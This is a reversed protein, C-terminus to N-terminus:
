EIVEDALVLVKAPIELGLTNATKLNIVFEFKLSQMVPLDAPKEGKLIKGVYVGVQRYANSLSSGYSMLGGIAVFERLSYIAPLKYLRALGVLKERQTLFFPDAGVILAQVKRGVLDTIASDIQPDSTARAFSLSKGLAQAAEQGDKMITGTNPNNPNVLVGISDVSPILQSLLELRKTETAVM